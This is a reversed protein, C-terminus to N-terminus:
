YASSRKTKKSKKSKMRDMQSNKMITGDPMRHSGKPVKSRNTQEAKSASYNKGFVDKPKVKQAKEVSDPVKHQGNGCVGCSEEKMKTKKVKSKVVM